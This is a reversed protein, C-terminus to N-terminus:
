WIWTVILYLRWRTHTVDGPGPRPGRAGAVWWSWDTAHSQNDGGFERLDRKERFSELRSLIPWLLIPCLQAHFHSPSLRSQNLPWAMLSCVESETSLLISLPSPINDCPNDFGRSGREEQSGSLTRQAGVIGADLQWTKSVNWSLVLYKVRQYKIDAWFTQGNHTKKRNSKHHPITSSSGTLPTLIDSININNNHESQWSISVVRIHTNHPHLSGNECVSGDTVSVQTM